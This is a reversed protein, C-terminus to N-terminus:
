YDTKMCDTGRICLQKKERAIIKLFEQKLIGRLVEKVVQELCFYTIQEKTTPMINLFCGVGMEAAGASDFLRRECFGGRGVEWQTRLGVVCGFHQEM